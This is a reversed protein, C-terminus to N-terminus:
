PRSESQSPVRIDAPHKGNQALPRLLLQNTTYMAGSGQQLFLSQYPRMVLNRNVVIRMHSGPRESLIPQTRLGIAEPTVKGAQPAAHDSIDAQSLTLEEERWENVALVGHCSSSFSLVAERVGGLAFV